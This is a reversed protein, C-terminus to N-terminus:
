SISKVKEPRYDIIADNKRSNCERCLPQINDKTTLGGLVLPVIHDKTIDETAGCCLCKNDALELIYRWQKSTLRIEKPTINTRIARERKRIKRDLKSEERRNSKRRHEKQKDPNEKGWELRNAVMCSKCYSQKGDRSKKNDSFDELAKEEKCRACFKYGKSFLEDAKKVRDAIRQNYEETALRKAELEEQRRLERRQKCRVCTQAAGDFDILPKEELCYQCERTEKKKPKKADRCDNCGDAICRSDKRYKGRKLKFETRHKEVGCLPCIVYEQRLSKYYCERCHETNKKGKIIKGCDVCYKPGVRPKIGKSGSCLKCYYTYGDKTSKSNYFDNLDKEKGCKTCIKSAM